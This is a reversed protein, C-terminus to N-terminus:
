RSRGRPKDRDVGDTSPKERPFARWQERRSVNEAHERLLRGEPEDVLKAIVDVSAGREASRENLRARAREATEVIRDFVQRDADTVMTSRLVDRELDHMEREIERDEDESISPEDDDDGVVLLRDLRDEDLHDLQIDIMEDVPHRKPEHTREAVGSVGTEIRKVRQERGVVYDVLKRVSQAEREDWFKRNDAARRESVADGAVPAVRERMARAQQVVQDFAKLDGATVMQARAQQRDAETLPGLKQEMRDERAAEATTPANRTEPKDMTPEQVIAKMEVTKMGGPAEGFSHHKQSRTASEIQVQTNARKAERKRVVDVLQQLREAEQKDILGIEESLIAARGTAITIMDSYDSDKMNIVTASRRFTARREIKQLRKRDKETKMESRFGARDAESLLPVIGEEERAKAELEALMEFYWDFNLDPKPEVDDANFKQEDTMDSENVGLMERFIQDVDESDDYQWSEGPTRFIM